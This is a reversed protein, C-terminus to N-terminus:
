LDQFVSFTDEMKARSGIDSVIGVNFRMVEFQLDGILFHDGPLLERKEKGQLKNFVQCADQHIRNM